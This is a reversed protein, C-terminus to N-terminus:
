KLSLIPSGFLSSLRIHNANDLSGSLTWFNHFEGNEQPAGAMGAADFLQGIDTIANGQGDAM